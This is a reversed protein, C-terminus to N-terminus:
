EFHAHPIGHQETVEAGQNKFETCRECVAVACKM